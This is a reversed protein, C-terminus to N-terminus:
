SAPEFHRGSGVLGVSQVPMAVWRWKVGDRVLSRHPASMDRRRTDQPRTCRTLECIRGTRGSVAQTGHGRCSSRVRTAAWRHLGAFRGSIGATACVVATSHSPMDGPDGRVASPSPRLGCPMLRRPVLDQLTGHLVVARALTCTAREVACRVDRLWGFPSYSKKSPGFARCGCPQKGSLCPRATRTQLAAVVCM